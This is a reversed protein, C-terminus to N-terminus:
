ACGIGERFAPRRQTGSGTVLYAADRTVWLERGDRRYGTNSAEHPLTADEDYTSRLM